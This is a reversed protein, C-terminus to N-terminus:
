VLVLIVCTLIYFCILHIHHQLNAEQRGGGEIAPGGGQGEGAEEGPGEAQGEM